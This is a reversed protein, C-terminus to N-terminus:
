SEKASRLTSVPLFLRLSESLFPQFGWRRYFSAVHVSLADVIVAQVGVRESVQLASDSAHALLLAGVGQGQGRKDVALRAILMAPISYRTHGLGALKTAQEREVSAVVASYYGIVEPQNNQTAVFTQATGRRASQSAYRLLWENLNANGCAFQARAHGRRLPVIAIEREVATM